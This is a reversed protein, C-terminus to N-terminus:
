RDWVVVAMIRFRLPNITVSGLSSLKGRKEENFTVFFATSSCTSLPIDKCWPHVLPWIVELVSCLWMSSRSVVCLPTSNGSIHIYLDLFLFGRCLIAQLIALPHIASTMTHIMTLILYYYLLILKESKTFESYHLMQDKTSLFKVKNCITYCM